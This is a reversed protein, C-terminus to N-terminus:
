RVLRHKGGLELDVTRRHATGSIARDVVRHDLQDRGPDACCVKGSLSGIAVGCQPYPFAGPGRM